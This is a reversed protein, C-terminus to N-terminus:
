DKRPRLQYSSLSDGLSMKILSVADQELESNEIGSDFDSKRRTACGTVIPSVVCISKLKQGQAADKVPSSERVEVQEDGYENGISASGAVTPPIPYDVHSASVTNPTVQEDTLAVEVQGEGSPSDPMVHKNAIHQDEIPEPEKKM